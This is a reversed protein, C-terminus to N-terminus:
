TFRQAMNRSPPFGAPPNGGLMSFMLHEDRGNEEQHIDITKLSKRYGGHYKKCPCLYHKLNKEVATRREHRAILDEVPIHRGCVNEPCRYFEEEVM